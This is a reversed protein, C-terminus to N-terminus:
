ACPKYCYCKRNVGHLDCSGTPFKETGCVSQCNTDSLCLGKFKHSQSKCMRGEAGEMEVSIFLLLLLLVTSISITKRAMKMGM